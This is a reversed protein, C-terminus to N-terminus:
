PREEGYVSLSGFISQRVLHLRAKSLKGYGNQANKNVSVASTTAFTMARFHESTVDMMACLFVRVHGSPFLAATVHTPCARWM